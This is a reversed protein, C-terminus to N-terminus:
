NESVAKVAESAFATPMVDIISPEAEGQAVLLREIHSSNVGLLHPEPIPRYLHGGPILMPQSGRRSGGAMVMAGSAHAREMQVAQAQTTVRMQADSVSAVQITTVQEGLEFGMGPNRNPDIIRTRFVALPLWRTKGDEDTYRRPIHLEIRPLWLLPYAGGSDPRVISFRRIGVWGIFLAVGLPVFVLLINLMWQWAIAGILRILAVAQEREIKNQMQQSRLETEQAWPTTIRNAIILGIILVISCLILIVAIWAAVSQLRHRKPTEGSTIQTM